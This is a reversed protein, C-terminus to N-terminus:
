TKFVQVRAKQGSFTDPWAERFLSLEVPEIEIDPTGVFRSNRRVGVKGGMAIIREAQGMYQDREQQTFGDRWRPLLGAQGWQRLLTHSSDTRGRPKTESLLRAAEM